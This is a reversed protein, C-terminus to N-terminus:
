YSFLISIDFIFFIVEILGYLILSEDNVASAITSTSKNSITNSNTTTSTTTPSPETQKRLTLLSLLNKLISPGLATLMDESLEVQSCPSLSSLEVDSVSHSESPSLSNSSLSVSATM